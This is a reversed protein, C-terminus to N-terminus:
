DNGACRWNFFGRGVVKELQRFKGLKQFLPGAAACHLVFHGVLQAFPEVTAQLLPIDATVGGVKTKFNGVRRALVKINPEVRWYAVHCAKFIEAISFIDIEIMEPFFVAWSLEVMKDALINDIEMRQKPGGHEGAGFEACRGFDTNM